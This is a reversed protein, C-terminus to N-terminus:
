EEVQDDSTYFNFVGPFAKHIATQVDEKKFCGAFDTAWKATANEKKVIVGMPYHIMQTDRTLYTAPNKGANAMHTFFICAGAMDQLATVTQAQDMDIITLKKPNEVIDAVTCAEKRDKLKILGSDQLIRLAIDMNMADNMIAIQAGTPIDAVTNYKESYLGIGTYYGYPKAMTLDAGKSKDYSQVFKLHQGLAMDVEGSNCAELVVPNSDFCIFETQYGMAEFDKQIARYTIESISTGGIKITKKADSSKPSAADSGCGTFAFVTFAVLLLIKFVKKNM